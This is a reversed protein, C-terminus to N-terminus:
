PLAKFQMESWLVGGPEVHGFEFNTNELPGTQRLADRIKSSKLTTNESKFVLTVGGM